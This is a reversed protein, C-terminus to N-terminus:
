CKCAQRLPGHSGDACAHPRSAAAAVADHACLAAVRGSKKRYAKRQKIVVAAEREM